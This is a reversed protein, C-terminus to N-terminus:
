RYLRHRVAINRCHFNPFLYDASRARGSKIWSRILTSSIDSGPCDIINFRAGSPLLKAIIQHDANASDRPAVLLESLKFIEDAEMWHNIPEINDLGVILFFEADDGYQAKLARLTDVTYSKGPRDIEIRSARFHKAGKTAAKVMRFRIEKPAVDNKHPPDGNPIFLVFDLHFQDWACQAVQMHWLHIPNFTGMSLGIRLKKKRVRM